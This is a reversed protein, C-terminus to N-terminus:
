RGDTGSNKSNFFRNVINIVEESIVRNSAVIEEGTIGVRNGKFDSAVGGAERVLLVGAKVDWASLGYEWFADFRGCAVNALDVAASGMRRVGRSNRIFYELCALHETLREFRRVPFGTAVISSDTEGTESVYVRNGNLKTGGGKVATFMENHTIDLVVGAVPEEMQCLAISVSYPRVQHVFNTTGDLPDIYWTYDGTERRSTEEETFFAAGPVTDHLEDTIIKEAETDVHSVLDHFAKSRVMSPTFTRAEASIYRGATAAAQMMRDCVSNLDIKQNNM